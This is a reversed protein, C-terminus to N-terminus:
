EAAAAHSDNVSAVSQWAQPELKRMFRNSRKGDIGQKPIHVSYSASKTEFMLVLMEPDLGVTINTTIDLNTLANSVASFDDARVSLSFNSPVDLHNFSREAKGVSLTLIGGSGALKVPKTKKIADGCSAAIEKMVPLIDTGAITHKPTFPDLALPLVGSNSHVQQVLLSVSKSNGNQDKVAAGSSLRLRAVGNKTDAAGEVSLDFADARDGALNAEVSRVQQTRLEVHGQIRMGLFDIRPSVKVIVSAESLIPSIWVNGDPDFVFHRHTFRRPASKDEPDDFHNALIDTAIEPVCHGVALFEKLFKVNEPPFSFQSAIANRAAATLSIEEDVQIPKESERRGLGVILENGGTLREAFRQLRLEALDEEDLAILETSTQGKKADLHLQMLSNIGGKAAIIAMLAAVGDGNFPVALKGSEDRPAEMLLQRGASVYRNLAKSNNAKTKTDAHAVDISMHCVCALTLKDRNKPLGINQLKIETKYFEGNQLEADLIIMALMQRIAKDGRQQLETASQSAQQTAGYWLQADAAGHDPGLSPIDDVVPTVEVTSAASIAANSTSSLTELKSSMYTVKSHSLHAAADKLKRM